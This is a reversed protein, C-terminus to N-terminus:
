LKFLFGWGQFALPYGTFWYVPNKPIKLLVLKLAPQDAQHAMYIWM